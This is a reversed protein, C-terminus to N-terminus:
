FCLGVAETPDKLLYPISLCGRSWGPLPQLEVVKVWVKKVKKLLFFFIKM